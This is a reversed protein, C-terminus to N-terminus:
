RVATRVFVGPTSRAASFFCTFLLVLLPWVSYETSMCLTARHMARRVRRPLMCSACRACGM